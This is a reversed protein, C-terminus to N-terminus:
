SDKVWQPFCWVAGQRTPDFRPLYRKPAAATEAKPQITPLTEPPSISPEQPRLRRASPPFIPPLMASATLKQIEM